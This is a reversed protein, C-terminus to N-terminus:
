DADETGGDPEEPEQDPRAAAAPVPLGLLEAVGVTLPLEAALQRLNRLAGDPWGLREASELAAMAAQGAHWIPVDLRAIRVVDALADAPLDDLADAGIRVISYRAREVRVALRAAAAVPAFPHPVAARMAAGHLAGFWDLVRVGKWAHAALAVIAPHRVEGPKALYKLLYKTVPVADGEATVADVKQAADVTTFESGAAAHRWAGVLRDGAAQADGDVVLLVHAHCHARYLGKGQWTVEWRVVGGVIERWRRTNQRITRWLARTASVSDRPDVEQLVDPRRTLTVFAVSYGASKAADVVAVAEPERSAATLAWCRPCLRDRCRDRAVNSPSGDFAVVFGRGSGCREVLLARRRLQDGFGPPCWDRAIGAPASSPLAGRDLVAAARVMTRARWLHGDDLKGKRDAM